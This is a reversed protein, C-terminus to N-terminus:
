TGVGDTNLVKSGFTVLNAERRATLADEQRGLDALTDAQITLSAALDPLFAGPRAHALARRIATAETIATLADESLGLDALRGSQNGLSAALNPLFADPQAEAM